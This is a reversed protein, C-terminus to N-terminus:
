IVGTGRLEEAVIAVIQHAQGESFGALELRRHVRSLKARVRRRKYVSANALPGHGVLMHMTAELGEKDQHCIPCKPM